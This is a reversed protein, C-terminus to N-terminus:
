LEEQSAVATNGSGPGSVPTLAHLPLDLGIRTGTRPDIEVWASGHHADAVARVVALGLGMGTDADPTESRYLEFLTEAQEQDMDTGPNTVWYSVTAGDESLASGIEVSSGAPTHTAANEVLQALAQLVRERDLVGRGTAQSDLTWQYGQTTTVAQSYAEATIERLSVYVPRVFDPTDAQSLVDLDDLVERMLELERGAGVALERQRPSTSEQALRAVAQSARAQPGSIRRRAESVFHRQSAHARDVRDLMHNLTVALESIDDRGTVPVRGSLDYSGISEAVERMTRLPSLIRGAVLWSIGAALVLGAVGVFVLILVKQDNAEYDAQTFHAIILDAEQQSGAAGVATVTVRGWRIQGDPSEVVGASAGDALIQDIRDRDAALASGVDGATNDVYLVENGVVGILVEDTAPTQIELYSELFESASGFPEHAVPDAATAAFTRFEDAEQVIEANAVEAVQQILVSRVSVIVVILTLGTTALIWWVIRWRAGMRTTQPVADVSTDTSM